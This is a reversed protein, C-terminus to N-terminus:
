HIPNASLSSTCYSLLPSPPYLIVGFDQPRSVLCSPTSTLQFPSLQPLLNSVPILHEVRYVNSIFRKKSTQTSSDLLCNSIHTKLEPYFDSNFM